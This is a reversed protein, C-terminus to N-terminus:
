LHCNIYNWAKPFNMKKMKKGFENNMGIVMTKSIQM